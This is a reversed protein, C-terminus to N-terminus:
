GNLTYTVNKAFSVNRLGQTDPPLFYYNKPFNHTRVLHIVVGGGGGGGGWGGFFFFLTTIHVTKRLKLDLISSAMRFHFSTKSPYIFASTM